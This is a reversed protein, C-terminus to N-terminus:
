LEEAFRTVAAAKLYGSWDKMVPIKITGESDYETWFGPYVTFDYLAITGAGYGEALSEAVDLLADKITQIDLGEELDVSVFDNM